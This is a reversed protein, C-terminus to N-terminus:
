AIRSQIFKLAAFTFRWDLLFDLAVFQHLLVITWFEVLYSKKSTKHRFKRQALFAGPWGGILEAIHLNVEAIRWTGAEARRKDIRYALFTLLSILVPWGAVIRWDISTALRNLAFVPPVLLICLVFLASLTVGRKRTARSLQQSQRDDM